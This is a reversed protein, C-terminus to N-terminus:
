GDQPPREPKNPVSQWFNTLLTRIDQRDTRLCDAWERPFLAAQDTQLFREDLLLIVGEDKATRIVRGAAQLVKNMGPYRYAFDFGSKGAKEYYEKLIERETCIQPLGTGIIAAGILREGTLDIGESFIGGMVCFGVLSGSPCACATFADLFEERALETMHSSQKLIRLKLSARPIAFPEKGKDEPLEEETERGAGEQEEGTSAVLAGRERAIQCVSDMFAYSPFFVLYNGARACAMAEIYDYIKEYEQRGRRRYRSSVDRAAAILRRAPDFPSSAYIAYDEPDGSLLERYYPMPLLTASYFVTSNGKDLCEKLCASPNVCLEKLMFRGDAQLETYIRYNEDAREAMNLFHRVAFYFDRYTENGDLATSNEAFEQMEGFLAQLTLIFADASNLVKWTECERKLELLAQNCRSLKRELKKSHGKVLRRVELFDEKYLVASYMERAREVLNHAEDVLFLYDGSIGEGFFRKLYINPDFVYNYDCVIGDAWLTLDLCLEFPCVHNEESAQLIRGRELMGGEQLLSFVAANVRDYHGAAYPCSLPNCDPKELICLKDKATVTVSMFSLGRQRLIEFAEEAVTRTVTKATLYFLKDAYGEGMAKVSPFVASMTKGIGTPAQIFLTKGRCITRYVSVALDRQGPRYPYPFELGRMSDDREMRHRYQWLAWKGYECTLWDFWENLKDMDWDESFRRLQGTELNGYTMQVTVVSLGREHGAMHAYCMAQAKHVPFPEDLRNIDFFVGKIEDVTLRGEEEILGDARGEIQLIVDEIPIRCKLAVEARYAAGMQRQVRRHLRSGAQMAEKERGVSRRNDIDGSRLIFEVLSRVSVRIVNEERKM